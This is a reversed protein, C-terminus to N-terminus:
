PSDTEQHRAVRWGAQVPDLFHPPSRYALRDDYSYDKLYGTSASGGSGTGVAGRYKQVITGKVELTGLESHDGCWYQDVAFSGKLALIAAHVRPDTLYGGSKNECDSAYPNTVEHRIRVFKEAILGAVADAGTSQVLDGNVIVDKAAAITVDTDYDGSVYVDGCDAPATYPSNADYDQHCGGSASGHDVYIVGNAPLAETGSSGGSTWSMSGGDLTITTKGTFVRGAVSALSDNSPPLNLKESGAEPPNVFTPASGSCGSNARWGEDGTGMGVMRAVDDSGTRGFQPTGCILLEDNTHLPGEVTDGTVFQIEKCSRDGALVQDGRNYPARWYECKEAADAVLGAPPSQEGAVYFAPDLTEYETVYAYDLFSERKFWAVISRQPGNERPTQGTVRIRFTRSGEDIMTEVPQATSCQSHGNAPLLEITYQASSGPLSRWRRPDSGSGDWMLNIPNEEGPAPAPVQDCDTWLDPSRQIQTLYYNLGAEAAAYAQKDDKSRGSFGIDGSAATLAATSVLAAVLVGVFVVYMAIGREDGVRRTAARRIDSRRSM